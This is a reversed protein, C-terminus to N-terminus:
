ADKGRNGGKGFAVPADRDKVRAGHSPVNIRAGGSALVSRATQGSARM